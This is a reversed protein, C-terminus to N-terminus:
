AIGVACHAGTMYRQADAMIDRGLPTLQGHQRVVSLGAMFNRYDAACSQEVAIRRDAALQDSELLRSMAWHMRASVFTAHYIGDMPRPDSRLPSSYGAADDNLVLAQETCLGFLLSHASEHAIVEFMADDTKHYDTNLFLAGWLQYHSGGDIQMAQSPDGAIPIVDHVIADIEGALEPAVRWILEMGREFRAIFQESVAPPPAHVRVGSSDDIFKELYHKSVACETPCRLQTFSRQLPAPPAHALQDFLKTALAVEGDMLVSVLDYYCAFTTPTVRQGTELGEILRLMAAHDFPLHPRAQEVVHRLSQALELHMRRDIQWGRLADPEFGLHINM